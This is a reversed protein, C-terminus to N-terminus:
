ANQGWYPFDCRERITRELLARAADLQRMQIVHVEEGSRDVYRRRAIQETRFENLIIMCWKLSFLPYLLEVRPRWDPDGGFIEDFSQALRSQFERALKMKPHLLVDALTKAPDDWGFYEFDLFVLRGDPARLANHFGLDSPSLTRYAWGLEGLSAAEARAAFRDLAPSFADRLFLRLENYVPGEGEQAQLRELRVRINAIVDAVTFFAEAAPPLVRAEPESGIRRLVGVFSVLQEVDDASVNSADVPEGTVFSYLAVKRVNDACIPQPICRVGRAWLFQLASFEVELRDRGDATTGFYFKAIYEEGERWVRYVRSNRGTGIREASGGRGGLLAEMAIRDERPVDGTLLPVAMSGAASM